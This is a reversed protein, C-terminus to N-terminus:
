TTPDDVAGGLTSVWNLKAEIQGDNDLIWVFQNQAEAEPSRGTRAAIKELVTWQDNTLGITIFRM